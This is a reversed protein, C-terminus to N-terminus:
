NKEEQLIYIIKVQKGEFFFKLLNFLYKKKLIERVFIYYYNWQFIKLFKLFRNLRIISERGTIIRVQMFIVYRVFCGVLVILFM